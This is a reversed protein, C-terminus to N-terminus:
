KEEQNNLELSALFAAREFVTQRRIEKEDSHCMHPNEFTKRTGRGKFNVGIQDCSKIFM